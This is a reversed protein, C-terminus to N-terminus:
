RQFQDPNVTDAFDAWRASTPHVRSAQTHPAARQNNHRSAKTMGMLNTMHETFVLANWESRLQAYTLTCTKPDALRAQLWHLYSTSSSSPM